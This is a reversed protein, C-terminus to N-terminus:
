ALNCHFQSQLSMKLNTTQIFINMQGMHVLDKLQTKGSLIQCQVGQTLLNTVSLINEHNFYGAQYCFTELNCDIPLFIPRCEPYIEHIVVQSAM